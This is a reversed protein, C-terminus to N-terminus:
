VKYAVGLFDTDGAAGGIARRIAPFVRWTDAGLTYTDKPAFFQLDVQRVDPQFGLFYIREPSTARNVLWVAVAATPALGSTSGAPFNGYARAIPGGHFDGICVARDNGASDDFQTPDAAGAVTAWVEAGGQGPMGALRMTPCRLRSDFSGSVATYGGDLLTGFSSSLANTITRIPQGYAYAGGSGSGWDGNSKDLDGMGFHLFTDTQTEVVAHVYDGTANTYFYYSPFPGDGVEHLCRENDLNSDVVSNSSNFGNGSDGPMLGARTSSSYGTSQYMACHLGMPSAWRFQVFCTSKSLACQRGSDFTNIAENVTWGATGSAFTLLKSMLDEFDTASGTSETM